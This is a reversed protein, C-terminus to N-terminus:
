GVRVRSRRWHKSQGPKPSTPISRKGGPLIKRPYNIEEESDVYHETNLGMDLNRDVLPPVVKQKVSSPEVFFGRFFEEETRLATKRLDELTFEGSLFLVAKLDTGIFDREEKYKFFNQMEKKRAFAMIIERPEVLGKFTPSMNIGKIIGSFDAGKDLASLDIILSPRPKYYIVKELDIIIGAMDSPVDDSFNPFSRADSGKEKKGQYTSLLRLLVVKEQPLHCMLWDGKRVLSLDELKL